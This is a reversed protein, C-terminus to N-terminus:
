SVGADGGSTDPEPQPQPGPESDSESTETKEMKAGYAQIAPRTDLLGSAKLEELGPLDDLSQLGFHDLFGETTGWTAPRGPTQRRGRLAIWGEELLVDMTGKSLQVGRIEEIEARTIPQHFAIIALTELAARSLKREVRQERSLLPGLDPATRFAWSKGVQVVNVGHERYREELATLLPVPDVGEPLAGRLQKESVPEASAFLIAELLRLYQPDVTM